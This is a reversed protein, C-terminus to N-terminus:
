YRSVQRGVNDITRHATEFVLINSLEVQKENAKDITLFGM